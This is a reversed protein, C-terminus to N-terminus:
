ISSYGENKVRPISLYLQFTRSVLVSILTACAVGNLGYSDILLFCLGGNIGATMFNIFVLNNPKKGMLMMADLLSALAMVNQALVYVLVAIEFKHYNEVGVFSFVYPYIFYIILDVTLLILVLLIFLLRVKKKYITTTIKEYYYSSVVNAAYTGIVSAPLLIIMGIKTIVSYIAVDRPEMMTAIAFTDIWVLMMSSVSILGFPLMSRYCIEKSAKVYVLESIKIRSSIRYLVYLLAVLASFGFSVIALQADLIKFYYLTSIAVLQVSPFVIEMSLISDSILNIGKLFYSLNWLIFYIPLIFLISVWYKVVIGNSYIVLFPYSCVICAIVILIHNINSKLVKKKQYADNEYKSALKQTLVDSGFRSVAHILLFASMFITYEGYIDVSLLRALTLVVFVKIAAAIAKIFMSTVIKLDLLEKFNM